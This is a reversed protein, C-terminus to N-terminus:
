FSVHHEKQQSSPASPHHVQRCRIRPIECVSPSPPPSLNPVQYIPPSHFHTIRPHSLPAPKIPVAVPGCLLSLQSPHNAGILESCFFFVGSDSALTPSFLCAPLATTTSLVLLNPPCTATPLRVPLFSAVIRRHRNGPVTGISYGYSTGSLPPPRSLPVQRALFSWGPGM